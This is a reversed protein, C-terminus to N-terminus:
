HEAARRARVVFRMLGALVQSLCYAKARFEQFCGNAILVFIATSHLFETPPDFGSQTNHTHKHAKRAKFLKLGSGNSEFCVWM